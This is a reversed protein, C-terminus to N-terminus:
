ARVGRRWQSYGVAVFAPATLAIMVLRFRAVVDDSAGDEAPAANPASDSARASPSPNADAPLTPADGLPPLSAVHGPKTTDVFRDGAVLLVRIGSEAPMVISESVLREGAVTAIVRVRSGVALHAFQARGDAGTTAQRATGGIVELTVRVGAVNGSFSGQVVRETLTGPPLTGDQLAM